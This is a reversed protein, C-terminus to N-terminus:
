WDSLRLKTENELKVVTVKSCTRFVVTVTVVTVPIDLIFEVGWFLSEEDSSIPCALRASVCTCM